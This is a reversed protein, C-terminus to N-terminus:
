KRRHKFAFRPVLVALINGIWFYRCYLHHVRCCSKSLIFWDILFATLSVLSPLFLNTNDEDKLYLANVLLAIIFLLPIYYRSCSENEVGKIDGIDAFGQAISPSTDQQGLVEPQFGTPPITEAIPVTSGTNVCITNSPSGPMCGNQARVYFCYQAGTTLGGVTYSNSTGINPNGYLINDASPGYAVLYSTFPQPVADWSLYVSSGSASATLNTPTAPVPDHCVSPSSPSTTTTTTTASTSAGICANNVIGKSPHTKCWLGGPQKSWTYQAVADPYYVSEITTGIDSILVVYDGGTNNFYNGIINVVYYSNANIHASFNKPSNSNTPNDKIKWNALDVPFPNTNTIEVWEDGHANFESLFVGSTPNTVPPQWASNDACVFNLDLDFNALLSQYDNGAQSPFSVTWTYNKTSNQNIQGLGLDTFVLPGSYILQDSVISLNLRHQGSLLLNDASTTSSVQLFCPNNDDQNEVSILHPPNTIFGPLINQHSILPLESSKSCQLTTPTNASDNPCTIHIDVASAPTSFFLLFLTVLFTTIM